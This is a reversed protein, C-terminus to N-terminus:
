AARAASRVVRFGTVFPTAQPMPLCIPIGGREQMIIKVNGWLLALLPWPVAAQTGSTPYRM